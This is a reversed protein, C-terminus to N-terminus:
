PKTPVGAKPLPRRIRPGWGDPTRHIAILENATIRIVLFDGPPREPRATSGDAIIQIGKWQYVTAAHSHGHVLCAVNYPKVAEFFREQADPSWWGSMGDPPVGFHQFIVVPRGSTGVNKALDQKLFTLAGEPSHTQPNVSAVDAPGDGGFLNLQVLHVHDWDWSYHLGNASVMALGPRQRNRERIGDRVVSKGPPGDHNGFGEYAPFVLRGKGVLGFDAVFRKWVQPATRPDAGNDLLDGCLVVGRPTRVVGAGVDDPLPTGALSNMMDIVQQNLEDSAGVGYHGDSGVFFTVDNPVPADEVRFSWVDGPASPLDGNSENVRWFYTRGLELQQIPLVISAAKPPLDRIATADALQRDIGFYVTQSAAYRGPTWRLERLSRKVGTVRDRPQPGTAPGTSVTFTWVPSRELPKGAADLPEVRWFYARGLVLPGSPMEGAQPAAARALRADCAEVAAREPGFYVRCARTQANGNEWRLTASCEEVIAGNAPSPGFPEFWGGANRVERQSLARDWVQVRAVAGRFGFCAQSKPSDWATGLYIPENAKTRLTITKEVNLVGDVYVRFAGPQYSYAIHHWTGAEPPRSRAFGFDGSGYSCYVGERGGGYAFEASDRPRSAWSVLVEKGGLKATHAWVALTFPHNGTIEGPAQFSSCLWRGESFVVARRGAVTAVTPASDGVCEFRGGLKGPNDWSRLEGPIFAAADLDVIPSLEATACGALLGLVAFAPAWWRRVICGNTRVTM